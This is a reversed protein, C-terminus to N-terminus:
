VNPKPCLCSKMSTSARGIRRVRRGWRDHTPRILALFMFDPDSTLGVDVVFIGLDVGEYISRLFQEKERLAAETLKRDTVDFIAGYWTLSADPLSEPQARSQMWRVGGGSVMVRWEHNLETLSLRSHTLARYFSPRDSPHMQEFFSEPKQRILDRGLGLVQECQSSIFDIAFDGQSQEKATYIVGPISAALKQLRSESMALAESRAVVLRELNQQYESLLEETKKRPTIDFICGDWCIKGSARPVPRATAYLWKVQGSPTCIAFEEVWQSGAYAAAKQSNWIRELDDPAIMEWILSQQAMIQEASLEFIEQCRWSVYTLQQRGEPYSLCQYAIGPMNETLSRFLLEREGLDAITEQTRHAMQRLTVVLLNMERLYTTPLALDGAFQGVAVTQAVAQLKDMPAVVLRYMLGAQGVLTGVGLAVVWPWGVTLLGGAALVGLGLAIALLMPLTLLLWLSYQRPRYSSSM